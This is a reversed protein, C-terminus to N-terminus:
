KVFLPKFQLQFKDENKKPLAYQYILTYLNLDIASGLSDNLIKELELIFYM